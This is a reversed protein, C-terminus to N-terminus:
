RSVSLTRQIKRNNKFDCRDAFPFNNPSKSPKLTDLLGGEVTGGSMTSAVAWGSM